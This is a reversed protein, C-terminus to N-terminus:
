GFLALALALKRKMGGSYTKTAAKGHTAYPFDIRELAEPILAELKDEPVGKLRGVLKMHETATLVDYLISNQPCVGLSQRVEETQSVVSYGEIFADGSTPPIM